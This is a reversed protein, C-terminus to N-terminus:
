WVQTNSDAFKDGALIDSDLIDDDPVEVGVIRMWFKKNAADKENDYMLLRLSVARNFDLALVEDKIQLHQSAPIGTDRALLGFWLM